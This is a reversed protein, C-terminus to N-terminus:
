VIKCVPSIRIQALQRATFTPMATITSTTENMLNRTDRVHVPAFGAGLLVHGLEHAVTWRTGTEAVTCAPRGKAHGGCGNLQEKFSRVFYVLVDTPPAAAGRAHLENFEGASLDWDCEQNVKEFRVQDGPSFLLSQGNMMDIRIGYQAYVAQASSLILDFTVQTLAIARFHLGIRHRFGGIRRDLAALTKPGVVGDPVLGAVSTQFRRVAEATENGYDGDPSFTQSQTSIPMPFGLDILAMQVLHVHRGKAGKRLLALGLDVKKLESEDKFRPSVIPRILRCRRDARRSGADSQVLRTGSFNVPCKDEGMNPSSSRVPVVTAGNKSNEILPSAQMIGNLPTISSPLRFPEKSFGPTPFPPVNVPLRSGYLRGRVEDFGGESCCSSSAREHYIACTRLNRRM